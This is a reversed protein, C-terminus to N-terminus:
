QASHAPNPTFTGPRFFLERWAFMTARIDFPFSLGNPVAPAFVPRLSFLYAKIAVVDERTMRTYWPFPMVPYLYGVSHGIGDHLAAYFQDDTWGGIGSDPDPTINPSYLTGFPTSIGRGGAFSTGGPQTHCAMCDAARMMYLGAAIQEAQAPTAKPEAARAAPVPALGAALLILMASAARILASRHRRM